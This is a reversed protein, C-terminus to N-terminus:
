PFKWIHLCRLTNWLFWDLWFGYFIFKGSVLVLYSYLNRGRGGCSVTDMCIVRSVAGIVLVVPYIGLDLSNAPFFFLFHFADKFLERQMASAVRFCMWVFTSSKPLFSEVKGEHYQLQSDCGWRGKGCAKGLRCDLHHAETTSTSILIAHPM